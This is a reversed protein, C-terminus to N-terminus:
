KIVAIKIIADKNNDTSIRAVYVGNLVKHGKDNRADWIIDGEHPGKKGQPDNKTYSRAWVREGLITYIQIRVDSDQELYYVFYTEPKNM